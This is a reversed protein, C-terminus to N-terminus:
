SGHDQFKAYTFSGEDFPFIRRPFIRSISFALKKPDCSMKWWKLKSYLWSLFSFIKRRKNGFHPLNQDFDTIRHAFKPLDHMFFRGLNSINYFFNLSISHLRMTNRFHKGTCIKWRKNGFFTEENILKLHFFLFKIGVHLQKLHIELGIQTLCESCTDDNRAKQCSAFM